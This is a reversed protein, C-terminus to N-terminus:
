DGCVIIKGCDGEGSVLTTGDPSVAVTLPFNSPMTTTAVVNGTSVEIVDLSPLFFGEAVAVHQGSPTFKLANVGDGTVTLPPTLMASFPATWFGAGGDDSGAGLLSGDPSFQVATTAGQTADNAVQIVAMASAGGGVRLDRIEAFGDFFGVAVRQTTANWPASAAVVWPTARPVSISAAKTMTAVTFVTLEDGTDVTLLQAGDPSFAVAFIDGTPGAM